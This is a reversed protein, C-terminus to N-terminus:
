FKMTVTTKLEKDTFKITVDFTYTGPQSPLKDFYLDFDPSCYKTEQEDLEDVKCIIFDRYQELIGYPMVSFPYKCLWTYGNTVYHYPTSGYFTILDNVSDGKKHNEDFDDNCIVDIAFITDNIVSNSLPTLEGPFCTDGLLKALEHFKRVNETMTARMEDRDVPLVVSEDDKTIYGVPLVPDIEYDYVFQTAGIRISYESVGYSSPAYGIGAINGSISPLLQNLQEEKQRLNMVDPEVYVQIYNDAPFSPQVSGIINSNNDKSDKEETADLLSPAITTESEKECSCFVCVAFLLVYILTKM